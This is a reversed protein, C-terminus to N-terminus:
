DREWVGVATERGVSFWQGIKDRGWVEIPGNAQQPTLFEVRLDNSHLSWNGQHHFFCARVMLAAITRLGRKDGGMGKADLHATEFRSRADCGPVLRCYHSGDRKVVQAKEKQEHMRVDAKLQERKRKADERSDKKFTLCSYDMM